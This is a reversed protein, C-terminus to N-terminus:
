DDELIRKVEAKDLENSKILEITLEALVNEFKSAAVLVPEKDMYCKQEKFYTVKQFWFDEGAGYPVLHISLECINRSKCILKILELQKAPTFPPYKKEWFDSRKFDEFNEPISEAEEDEMWYDSCQLHFGWNEWLKKLTKESVEQFNCDLDGVNVEMYFRPKVGAAKMMQEIHNTM